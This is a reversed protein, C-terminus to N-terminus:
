FVMDGGSNINTEFMEERILTQRSFRRRKENTDEGKRRRYTEEEEYRKWRMM